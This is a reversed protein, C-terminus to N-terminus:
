KSVESGLRIELTPESGTRAIEVSRAISGTSTELLINSRGSPALPKLIAGCGLEKPLAELQLLAENGVASVLLRGECRLRYVYGPWLKLVPSPASLANVGWFGFGGVLLIKAGSIFRGPRFVAMMAGLTRKTGQTASAGAGLVAGFAGSMFRHTVAPVAIILAITLIQAVVVGLGLPHNAVEPDRIAAAAAYDVLYLVPGWLSLEVAYLSLNKMMAPFIPFVGAALPFLVLLLQWLVKKALMLVGDVCIFLFQTITVLVSWIGLKLAPWVGSSDSKLAPDTNVSTYLGKIQAIMKAEGGRSELFGVLSSSLSDLLAAGQRFFLLALLGVVLGEFSEQLEEENRLAQILCYGFSGILLVRGVPVLISTDVGQM